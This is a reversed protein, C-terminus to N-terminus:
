AFVRMSKILFRGSVMDTSVDLLSDLLHRQEPWLFTEEEDEWDVLRGLLKSSERELVVLMVTPILLEVAGRLASSGEVVVM